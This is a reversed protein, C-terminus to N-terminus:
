WQMQMGEHLLLILAALLCVGGIVGACLVVLGALARDTMAMLSPTIRAELLQLELQIVHSLDELM